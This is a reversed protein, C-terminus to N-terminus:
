PSNAPAPSVAKNLPKPPTQYSSTKREQSDCGLDANIAKVKAANCSRAGAFAPAWPQRSHAQVRPEQKRLLVPPTLSLAHDVGGAKGFGFGGIAQHAKGPVHRLMVPEIMILIRRLDAVRVIIRQDAFVVREFGLERMQDAGIRRIRLDAGGRGRHEPFHRMGHAHHAEVIAKGIFIDRFKQRPHAAEEGQGFVRRDRKGGLRLDVAQGAREAVLLAFQDEGRSTAVACGALIHSGINAGDAINGLPQGAGVNGVQELYTTFDVHGLAVEHREVLAQEGLGVIRFLRALEGIRAIGGGTRQALLVGGDGGAPRQTEEGMAPACMARQGGVRLEADHLCNGAPAQRHRVHQRADIAQIRQNRMIPGDFGRARVQGEINIAHDVLDVPEVPLLPEAEDGLRRAPRDGM